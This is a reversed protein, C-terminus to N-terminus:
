NIEFFKLSDLSMCTADNIFLWEDLPYRVEPTRIEIPILPIEILFSQSNDLGKTTFKAGNKDTFYRAKSAKIQYDNGETIYRSKDKREVWKETRGTKDTTGEWTQGNVETVVVKAGEIKKNKNGLEYVIVTLDYTVPPTTFSYIDPTYTRNKATSRESTFFGSKLDKRITLAYDNASSNIPKLMNQAAGWKKALEKTSTTIVSKFIDLGGVGPHGDSAFFLLSDNPSLSPFLENGATNIGAGMNYVKTTDWGKAKKDYTIYWLDKGGLGGPM